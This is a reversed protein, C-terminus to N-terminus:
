QNLIQLYKSHKNPSIFPNSQSSLGVTLSSKGSTSNNWSQTLQKNSTNTIAVPPQPSPPLQENDPTRIKKLYFSIMKRLNM